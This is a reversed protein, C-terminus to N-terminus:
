QKNLQFAKLLEDMANISKKQKSKAIGRKRSSSLMKAKRKKEKNQNNSGNSPFISKRSKSSSHSISLSFKLNMSGSSDITARKDEPRSLRWFLCEEEQDLARVPVIIEMNKVNLGGDM